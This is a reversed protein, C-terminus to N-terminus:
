WYIIFVEDGPLGPLGPIGDDGRLGM